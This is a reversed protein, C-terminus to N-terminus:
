GLSNVAEVKRGTAATSRAQPPPCVSRPSLRPTAPMHRNVIEILIQNQEHTVSTPQCYSAWAAENLVKSSLPTIVM